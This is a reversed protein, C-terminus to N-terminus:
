LYEEYPHSASLLLIFPKSFDDTINFICVLLIQNFIMDKNGLEKVLKIKSGSHQNTHSNQQM